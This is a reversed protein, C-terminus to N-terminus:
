RPLRWCSIAEAHPSLFFIARAVHLAMHTLFVAVYRSMMSVALGGAAREAAVDLGPPLRELHGIGSEDAYGRGM